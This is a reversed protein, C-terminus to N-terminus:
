SARSGSSSFFFAFRLVPLPLPAAATLACSSASSSSSCPQLPQFSIPTHSFFQERSSFSHYSTGSRELPPPAGGGRLPLSHSLFSLNHLIFCPCFPFSSLAGEALVFKTFELFHTAALLLWM